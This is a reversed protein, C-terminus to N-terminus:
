LAIEEIEDLQDIVNREIHDSLGAVTPKEFLVRLAVEVGLAERIRSVIQTALLSHGGLDFFNSHVGIKELNLVQAWIGAVLSEIETRPPIYSEPESTTHDPEPLSKRDIKGNPTVPLTDLLVFGSPVMAPPLYELLYSRLQATTPKKEEGVAVVYAVLVSEDQDNKRGVVICSQVLPHGALTATVEAPEIRVGRIKIQDDCRGLIQLSGDPAYCGADGTFYILDQPDNRFPNKVFRKHNEDPANVYGLSRFPTRLVIEGPENIGCLQNNGALVLAQTNPMPWGVPQVGPRLDPPVRYFCKILTTETPGYFNVIASTKPLATRWQRVFAETLPEGMFFVWRMNGLYPKAGDSVLWSQAVSPVAHLITVKERELWGIITDSALADAAAPLCLTAGSTLPLFIDRLVADFSLATLQAVRDGSGIAFTERQWALFHSLGKHCGLVGKPVGTTGSTFFIYAPDETGLEPLLISELDTHTEAGGASGSQPDIFLIASGFDEELWVDNPQQDGVYLLRKANAERLIRQKRQTPLACDVPLLVGGSQLTAMMGAVWGFSSQGYVAVVEGRVLGSALLLRALTESREALEAYAWTQQGQSIAVSAPTREAWSLVTRTIREQPPEALVASPDPLLERSEPTVLSYSQVSQQPAAVIQELLYKYQQLFCRIRADDFLEVKYVLNFTIADNQNKVYLTLEFKSEASSSLIPEVTLGALDLKSDEQDAMNFLVQFLPTHNLSREPHMAEVLKEFPLDQNAQAALATERVQSLLERFTPNGAFNKRLVLTNVFFGILGEIQSRNRNAIPSGVVIDEQGTYRHLLTQFAALLTMFLTVGEQRSLAKLQDTLEKSLVLSQRAGRDSQVALRLRDTRLNLVAPIGELQKKWYSLQSELVEGQLWKRQWVAFDAYQIPLEPLPSPEGNIFARYLMSLEGYLVGMSWGDSVIHHMTLLLVHDEEGLRVLKSRFLPGQALDFARRAEESVLRRAEEEREGEPHDRLDVVALSQGAAPAIVQVADGDVMSFTTRLSEHRRIIENLSQELAAVDLFGRLRLAGPINYLSSNPEYQDLFWLRQQAFSLPLEQNRSVPQIPPVPLEQKARKFANKRLRLMLLAQQEPTLDAIVEGLRATDSVPAPSNPDKLRPSVQHGRPKQETVLRLLLDELPEVSLGCVFRLAADRAATSQRAYLDRDSVVRSLANQWPGVDQTPVIPVPLLNDDLRDEFSEIPKVPLLYDTELKAEILGGHHSALVPIGRLMADVAAMGFGEVWLSPMLVARTRLFVDDLNKCNSLWRVNRLGTLASRDAATTGWGPLAAFQINPMARALALFISIGKVACANMLLVYDNDISGCNPFPGSGYHPPHHVFISEFGTWQRIYDAVFRSITIVASAQGILETRRKGPYLSAPGFPFMQPTHALYIVRSHHARLAAELLSQSRDESSVLTWDPEFERIQEVVYGCLRSPDVVAHIEVGNLNFIDIEGNANVHIKEATLEELLQQHTIPTVAALAPAVVRISHHRAALAEALARNSRNAGGYARTY